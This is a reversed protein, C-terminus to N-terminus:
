PSETTLAGFFMHIGVKTTLHKFKILFDILRDGCRTGDADGAATTASKLFVTMNKKDTVQFRISEQFIGRRILLRSRRIETRKLFVVQAGGTLRARESASDEKAIGVIL